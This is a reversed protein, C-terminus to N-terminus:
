FAVYSHTILSHAYINAPDGQLTILSLHNRVNQMFRSNSFILSHLGSFTNKSWWRFNEFMENSPPITQQLYVPSYNKLKALEAAALVAEEMGGLKDVLGLEKAKAGDWVRGQAVEEVDSIPM